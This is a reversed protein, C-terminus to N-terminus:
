RSSSSRSFFLVSLVAIECPTCDYCASVLMMGALERVGAHWCCSFCVCVKELSLSSQAAFLLSFVVLVVSILLKRNELLM